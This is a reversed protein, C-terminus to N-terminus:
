QEDGWEPGGWQLVQVHAGVSITKGEMGAAAIANQAFFVADPQKRPSMVRFERLTLLPEESVNGNIQDTCSQKCRPCGKVIHFIVGDISIVKWRDEEFPEMAASGKVVINPRFRSMPIEQHNNAKIRRNLEALSAETAILIPFGDVLSIPPNECNPLLRASPPTFTEITARRDVLSQRVLRVPIDKLEDPLMDDADMVKRFFASAENGMDEVRVVDDWLKALYVERTDSDITPTKTSVVTVTEGPLLHTSFEISTHRDDTTNKVIKTTVTAMRPSQRQTLFRHTPEGDAFSTKWIPLPLPTILMYRRDDQFGKSDLQVSAVEVARLSKVPYVFLGSVTGRLKDDNNNTTSPTTTTAARSSIVNHLYLRGILTRLRRPPFLIWTTLLIVVVTLMLIRLSQDDGETM